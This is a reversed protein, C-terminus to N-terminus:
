AQGQGEAGGGNGAIGLLFALADLATLLEGDIALVQFEDAADFQEIGVAVREDKLVLIEVALSRAHDDYSERPFDEFAGEGALYVGKVAPLEEHRFQSVLGSRVASVPLSYLSGDPLIFAARCHGPAAGVAEGEFAM